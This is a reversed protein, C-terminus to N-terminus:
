PASEWGEQVACPQCVDFRGLATKDGCRPCRTGDRMERHLQPDYLPEPGSTVAVLIAEALQEFWADKTEVIWCQGDTASDDFEACAVGHDRLVAIIREAATM